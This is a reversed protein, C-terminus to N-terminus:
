AVLKWHCMLNESPILLCNSFLTWIRLKKQSRIKRDESQTRLNIGYIKTNLRLILFYPGFNYQSLKWATRTSFDHYYISSILPPTPIKDCWNCADEVSFVLQLLGVGTKYNWTMFFWHSYANNDSKIIHFLMTLHFCNWEECSERAPQVRVCSSNFSHSFYPFQNQPFVPFISTHVLFSNFFLQPKSYPVTPLLSTLFSPPLNRFCLFAM